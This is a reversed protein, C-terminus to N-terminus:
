LVATRRLMENFKGLTLVNPSYPPPVGRVKDRVDRWSEDNIIQVGRGVIKVLGLEFAKQALAAKASHEPCPGNPDQRYSYVPIRNNNAM